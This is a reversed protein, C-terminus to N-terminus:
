ELIVPQHETGESCVSDHLIGFTNKPCKLRGFRDGPKLGFVNLRASTTQILSNVIDSSPRYGFQAPGDLDDYEWPEM